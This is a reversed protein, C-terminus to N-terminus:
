GRGGPTVAPGPYRCEALPMPVGGAGGSMRQAITELADAIRELSTAEGTWGAVAQDVATAMAEMRECASCLDPGAWACSGECADLDSCGCRRCYRFGSASLYLKAMEVRSALQLNGPNDIAAVLRALLQNSRLVTNISVRRTM